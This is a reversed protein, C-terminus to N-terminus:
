WECHAYHWNIPDIPCKRGTPRDTGKKGERSDSVHAEWVASSGFSANNHRKGRM